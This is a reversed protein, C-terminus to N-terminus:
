AVSQSAPPWVDDDAKNRIPQAEIQQTRFNLNPPEADMAHQDKGLNQKKQLSIGEVQYEILTPRAM